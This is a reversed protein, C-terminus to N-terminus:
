QEWQGISAPTSGSIDYISQRIAKHDAWARPCARPVLEGLMDRDISRWGRIRSIPRIPSSRFGFTKLIPITFHRTFEEIQMVDTIVRVTM